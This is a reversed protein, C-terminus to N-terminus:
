CVNMMEKIGAVKVLHLLVLIEVGWQFTRGTRVRREEAGEQM